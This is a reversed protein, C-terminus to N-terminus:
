NWVPAPYAPDPVYTQPPRTPGPPDPVREPAPDNRVAFIPEYVMSTDLSRVVFDNVVVGPYIETDDFKWGAVRKGKPILPRIKATLRGGQERAGTARNSYDSTFDFTRIWGGGGKTGQKIHCLEGHVVEAVLPEGTRAAQIEEESRLTESPADKYVAELTWSRDFATMRMWKVTRLFDYRVGNFVWYDLKKGKPIRATVIVSDEPTVTMESMEEGAGKNVKEARQIYAGAVRLVFTGPATEPAAQASPAPQAAAAGDPPTLTLYSWLVYGTYGGYTVCAFLDTSRAADPELPTNAPITTLVENTNMDRLSLPSEVDPRVWLTDAAATCVCLCLALLLATLICFKRKM